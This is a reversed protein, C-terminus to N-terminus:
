NVKQITENSKNNNNIIIIISNILLTYKSEASVLIQIKAVDM